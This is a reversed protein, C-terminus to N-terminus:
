SELVSGLVQILGIAICHPCNPRTRRRISRSCNRDTKGVTATKGLNLLTIVGVKLLSLRAGAKTSSSRDMQPVEDACCFLIMLALPASHLLASWACVMGKRSIAGM